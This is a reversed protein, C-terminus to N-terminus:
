FVRRFLYTFSYLPLWWGQSDMPHKAFKHFLLAHMPHVHGEAGRGPPLPRAEGVARLLSYARAAACTAVVCDARRLLTRM